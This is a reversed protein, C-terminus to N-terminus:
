FHPMSLVTYYQHYKIVYNYFTLTFYYNIQQNPVIPPFHVSKRWWLLTSKIKISPQPYCTFELIWMRNESQSQFFLLVKERRTNKKKNEREKKMEEEENFVYDYM